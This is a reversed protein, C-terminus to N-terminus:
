CRAICWQISGAIISAVPKSGFVPAIHTHYIKEYGEVTSDDVTGALSDLCQRAYTGLLTNAEVKQSSPSVGAANALHTEIERLLSKAQREGKFTETRQVTSGPVIAGYEDRVPERWSVVHGRVLSGKTRAGTERVRIYAM